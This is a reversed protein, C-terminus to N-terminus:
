FLQGIGDPFKRQGFVADVDFANIFPSGGAMNSRDRQLAAVTFLRKASLGANRAANGPMRIRPLNHVIRIFTHSAPGADHNTRKSNNHPMFVAMLSNFAVM